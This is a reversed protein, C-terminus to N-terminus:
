ISNQSRCILDVLPLVRPTSPFSSATKAVWGKPMTQALPVLEKDPVMPYVPVHFSVM